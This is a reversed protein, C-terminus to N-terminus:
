YFTVTAELSYMRLSSCKDGHWRIYNTQNKGTKDCHECKWEMQFNHSGEELRKINQKISRARQSEKDTQFKHTGNKSRVTSPNTDGCFIHVGNSVKIRQHYKVIEADISINDTKNLWKDESVVNLRVLVKREYTRAAVPDSFTKRVQIVDPEGHEERYRKVYKSSTFYTVWLEEPKCNKAYRVGYYWVNHTSWGILYTYPTYINM